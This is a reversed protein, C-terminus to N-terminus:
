CNFPCCTSLVMVCAWMSSHAELERGVLRSNNSMELQIWFPLVVGGGGLMILLDLNPM